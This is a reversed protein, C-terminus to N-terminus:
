STPAPGSLPSHRAHVHARYGVACASLAGSALRDRDARGGCLRHGMSRSFPSILRWVSTTPMKGLSAAM